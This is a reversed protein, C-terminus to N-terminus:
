LGEGVLVLSAREVFVHKNGLDVVFLTYWIDSAVLGRVPATSEHAHMCGHMRVDM